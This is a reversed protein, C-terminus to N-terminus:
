LEDKRPVDDDEDEEQAEEAAERYVGDFDIFKSFEELTREGDYIVAENTEKKYLIITPFSSIREEELENVTADMKAIVLDERDKYKEGLADYIPVLNSCHTCWPAYFEVLVNKKKDFAVEHFNTGVLIKVPNKDWDEPLDQTLVHRKLKGEVFATVFELINESTIESKEPKYKAMDREFKTLRMAPVENKKIGFFELIREHDAEDANITVFLVEGRFKKAPEKIMEVYEEYHGAEKSLIVLFHTKIYGGFLKQATDPNFDVVLPLSYILIFNLLKDVDLEENFENRGEDFKKFLVIKGDEVGYENFVEDSSSIAFIHDDVARWVELFVKAGESKMDWNIIEDAKRGGSYQTAVGKSYFKLTPYARVKHQEALTTEVTADVKALKVASGIEQLKKAAKAYEPALNKCHGCWPAYFEVLMYDNQEVAEEINDKTLVLVADETEIKALTVAFFCIISFILAFYKM